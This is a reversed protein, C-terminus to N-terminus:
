RQEEYAARTGYSRPQHIWSVTSKNPITPNRLSGQSLPTYRALFPAMRGMVLPLAMFFNVNPRSLAAASAVVIRRTRWCFSTSDLSSRPTTGAPSVWGVLMESSRMRSSPRYRLRRELVYFDPYPATPSGPRGRGVGGPMRTRVERSLSDLDTRPWGLSEPHM